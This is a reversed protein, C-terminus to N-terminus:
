PKKAVVFIQAGFGLRLSLSDFATRLGVKSLLKRLKYSCMIRYLGASGCGPRITTLRVIQFGVELLLKRMEGVTLWKEIPQLKSEDIPGSALFTSRNPTTLILHRGRRLLRLAARLHAEQDELHELVEHSVVIDFSEPPHEFHRIDAQVFRAHPFRQSAQEIAVDSLDVGVSPGIVGLIATLWGAGCGFDLIEPSEPGVAAIAGLIEVCRRVKVNNPYLSHSWRQNYFEQQELLSVVPKM